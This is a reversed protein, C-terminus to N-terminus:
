PFIYVKRKKREKKKLRRHSSPRVRSVEGVITVYEKETPFYGRMQLLSVGNSYDGRWKLGGGKMLRLKGERTTYETVDGETSVPAASYKESMGKCLWAMGRSHPAM